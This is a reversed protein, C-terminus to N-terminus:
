GRYMFPALGIGLVVLGVLIVNAVLGRLLYM